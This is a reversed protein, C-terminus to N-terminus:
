EFSGNSNIEVKLVSAHMKQVVMWESLLKHQVSFPVLIGTSPTLSSVPVLVGSCIRYRKLTQSSVKSAIASTEGLAGDCDGVLEGDSTGLREGLTEGLREGLTEGVEEGLTEGVREEVGVPVEDGDRAGSADTVRGGDTEGIEEGGGVTEEDGVRAGSTDVVKGGDLNGVSIGVEEVGFGVSEGDRVGDKAGEKASLSIVTLTGKVSDFEFLIEDSSIAALSFPICSENCSANSSRM